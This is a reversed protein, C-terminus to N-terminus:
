DGSRRTGKRGERASENANRRRRALKRRKREDREVDARM